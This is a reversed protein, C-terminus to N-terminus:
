CFFRWDYKLMPSWYTVVWASYMNGIFYEVQLTVVQHLFKFYLAMMFFSDSLSLANNFAYLVLYQTSSRVAQGVINVKGHGAHRVRQHEVM